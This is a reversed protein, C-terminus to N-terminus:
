IPMFSILTGHKSFSSERVSTFGYWDVGYIGSGYIIQYRGDSMPPMDKSIFTFYVYGLSYKCPTLNFKTVGYWTNPGLTYLNTNSTFLLAFYSSIASPDFNQSGPQHPFENETLRVYLTYGNFPGDNDIFYQGKDLRFAYNNEGDDGTGGPIGSNEVYITIREGIKPVFIILFLGLNKIRLTALSGEDSVSNFDRYAYGHDSDEMRMSWSGDVKDGRYNLVELIINLNTVNKLKVTDGDAIELHEGSTTASKLGNVNQTPVSMFIKLKESPAPLEDETKSCSAFNFLCAILGILTIATVSFNRFFHTKM